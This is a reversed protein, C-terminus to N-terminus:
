KIRYIKWNEPLTSVIELKYHSNLKNWNNMVNTNKWQESFKESNFVVLSGELFDSYEEYYFNYVKNEMNYSAFSQDVYFSYIAGQHDLKKIEEVVSREVKYVSYTKRFSYVFFLVNFAFVGICFVTLIKRNVLWKKLEVFLPFLVVLVIPHIILLFRYNQTRFGILFLCYLLLVLWLQIPAKKLSRYFPILFIGMSLLGIHFFNGFVYVINPVTLKAFGDNFLTFTFANSISWEKNLNFMLSLFNSNWIIVTVLIGVSVILIFFRIVTSQKKLLFYFCHLVPVIIIVVSAYRSFFAAGALVIVWIFNLLQQNKLYKLYNLVMSSIFFATLMDSMILFGGRVFYVQTVAGLILFLSADKQYLFFIIRKVSVLTGVLALFSIIRMSVISDVGLYYFFSGFFPYGIPWYIREPQFGGNYYNVLERCYRLYEHSDQGYLGNFNLIFHFVLLTIVPLAILAITRWNPSLEKIIM